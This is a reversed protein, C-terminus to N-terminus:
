LSSTGEFKITYIYAYLVQLMNPSPLKVGYTKSFSEIDWILNVYKPPAHWFGQVCLVVGVGDYM